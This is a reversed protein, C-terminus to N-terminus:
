RFHLYLPISAKKGLKSVSIECVWKDEPLGPSKICYVFHSFDSAKLFIYETIKITCFFFFFTFAHFWTCSLFNHDCFIHGLNTSNIGLALLVSSCLRLSNAAILLCNIQGCLFDNRHQYSTMVYHNQLDWFGATFQLFIISIQMQSMETISKNSPTSLLCIWM